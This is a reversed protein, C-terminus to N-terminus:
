KSLFADLAATPRGSDDFAGLKYGKRSNDAQPKWYFVGLGKNDPLSKVKGILDTLFAKCAVAETAPMGVECIMIESGYRDIMDKMNDLCQDNKSSWDDASPYLSMGIVDWKANNDKLGDFMWRYMSNDYGNSLHVIVKISSDVAKVANYGSTILAAFNKMNNSARGDEWLMGDNTENGVQVWVPTIGLDKLTDLVSFTYDYLTQKLDLF